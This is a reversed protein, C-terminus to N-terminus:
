SYSVPLADWVKPDTGKDNFVGCGSRAYETFLFSRSSEVMITMQDEGTLVDDWGLGLALPCFFCVRWFEGRSM